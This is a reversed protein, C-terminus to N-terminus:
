HILCCAKLIRGFLLDVLLLDVLLIDVIHLDVAEPDPVTGILFKRLKRSSFRSLLPADNNLKEEIFSRTNRTSM